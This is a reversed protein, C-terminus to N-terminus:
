TQPEFVEVERTQFAELAHDTPVLTIREVLEPTVDAGMFWETLAAYKDKLFRFNLLSISPDIAAYMGARNAKSRTSFTSVRRIADAPVGAAVAVTGLGELSEPWSQSFLHVNDKFWHTRAEMDNGIEILEESWDLGELNQLRSM